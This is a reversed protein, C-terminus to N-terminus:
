QGWTACVAVLTVAAGAPYENDFVVTWYRGQGALAPQSYIMHVDKKQDEGVLGSLTFGISIARKGVPCDVTFDEIAGPPLDQWPFSATVQEFEVAPGQPGVAGQPGVPGQVGQPGEQNWVLETENPICSSGSEADIVRLQGGINARCAHIEGDGSDPIAASAAGIGVLASIGLVALSKKIM